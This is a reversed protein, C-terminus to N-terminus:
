HFIVDYQGKDILDDLLEQPSDYQRVTRSQYLNGNIDVDRGNGLDSYIVGRVGEGYLLCDADIDHNLQDTWMEKSVNWNNIRYTTLYKM